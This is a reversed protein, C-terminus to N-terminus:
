WSPQVRGTVGDLEVRWTKQTPSFVATYTQGNAELRVLGRHLTQPRGACDAAFRLIECAGDSHDDVLHEMVPTACPNGDSQV